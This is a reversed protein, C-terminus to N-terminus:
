NSPFSPGISPTPVGAGVRVGLYWVFGAVAPAVFVAATFLASPLDGQSYHVRALNSWFASWVAFGLVVATTSGVDVLRSVLTSSSSDESETETWRDPM